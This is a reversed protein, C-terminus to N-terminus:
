FWFVSKWESTNGREDTVTLEISHEKNTPLFSLDAELMHNKADFEFLHWKGDIKGTYSKIGSLNDKIRVQVKGGLYSNMDAPFYVKEISPPITDLAIAFEGFQRVKTNLFAGSWNGGHPIQKGYEAISVILAKSKLKEEITRNPKISVSIPNMVADFANGVRFVSSLFETNKSESDWYYTNEYVAGSPIVVELEAKRVAIGKEPTIMASGKPYEQLANNNLSSNAILIFSLVSKNGAFDSVVMRVDNAYDEHLELWGYKSTDPYFPLTNTELRFCREMKIHDRKASRYDVHSYIHKSDNFNFRDYTWSYVTDSNLILEASYIGLESDSYETKDMAEFGIGIRGIAMIDLPTNLTYIGEIEQVDYTIASDTKMVIGEQLSPFIRVNKFVPPVNDHYPLGFHLPNIPEETKEDRIEFHLHPAMSGGSNGSYAIIEGKKVRYEKAKPIIETEFQQKEYQTKLVLETVPGNFKQLHAYVTVYGNPHTIYLAKGFGEASVKIRSIYGEAAAMVPVGEMEGTSLDLGSHFHNNRIEGFSGTIILPTDLPASFYNRPYNQSQSALASLLFSFLLYLRKNIM